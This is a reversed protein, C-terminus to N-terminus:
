APDAKVTDGAGLSRGRGVLKKEEQEALDGAAVSTPDTSWEAVM